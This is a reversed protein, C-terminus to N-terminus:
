SYPSYCQRRPGNYPQFSNDYARYSRYRNQCWRVHASGGGTVANGIIAGAIFAAAPFWFGNYQRYGPRPQRYGRHGRYYYYGNRQYFDNGEYVRRDRRLRRDYGPQQMEEIQMRTQVQIVGSKANGNPVLVPAATAPSYSLMAFSMAVATCLASTFKRM